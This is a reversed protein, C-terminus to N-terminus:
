PTYKILKVHNSTKPGLPEWMKMAAQVEPTKLSAEHEEVTNWGCLVVVLDKFEPQEVTGFTMIGGMQACAGTLTDVLQQKAEASIATVFVIETVPKNLPIEVGLQFRIHYITPLGVFVKMTSTLKDGSDPSQDFRAFDEPTMWNNVCYGYSSDEIQLGYHISYLGETKAFDHFIGDLMSPDARCEDSTRFVVIHTEQPTAM